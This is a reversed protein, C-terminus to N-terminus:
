GSTRRWGGRLILRAEWKGGRSAKGPLIRASEVLRKSPVGRAHGAHAPYELHAAGRCRKSSAVWWAVLDWRTEWVGCRRAESAQCCADRNLWGSAQSTEVTVLMSWINWTRLAAQRQVAQGVGGGRLIWRAEWKGGRSVKGPLVCVSEVLRKSPVDRGHGAHVLHEMHAAGGAEAGGARRWRWALDM